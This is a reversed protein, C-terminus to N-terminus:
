SAHTNGPLPTLVGDRFLYIGDFYLGGSLPSDNSDSVLFRVTPNAELSFELWFEQDAGMDDPAGYGDAAGGILRSAVRGDYYGMGVLPEFNSMQFVGDAPYMNNDVYYRKFAVHLAKADVAAAAIHARLMADDMVPLAIAVLIAIIAVVILVEVLTFGKEM